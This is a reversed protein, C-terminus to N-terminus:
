RLGFIHSFHVVGQASQLFLLSSKGSMNEQTVRQSHYDSLHSLTFDFGQRRGSRVGSM